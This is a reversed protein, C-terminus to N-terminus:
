KNSALEKILCHFSVEMGKNNVLQNQASMRHCRLYMLRIDAQSNLVIRIGGIKSPAANLLYTYKMLMSDFRLGEMFVLDRRYWQEKWWLWFSTNKPLECIGHEDTELVKELCDMAANFQMENLEEEEMGCLALVEARAQLQDNKIQAALKM